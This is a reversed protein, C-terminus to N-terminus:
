GLYGLAELRKRAVDDFDAEEGQIEAPTFSNRWEDISQRLQSAIDEKEYIINTEEGPDNELDYLESKYNMSHILKYKETRIAIKRDREFKVLHSLDRDPYSNKRGKLDQYRESITFTRPPKSSSGATLPIGQMQELGSDKLDLVEALTPLIDLTQVMNKERSGPSFVRPYRIIFPVKLLTDYLVYYHDFHQHDGLSEGHDSTIIFITNELIGKEELFEYLQGVRDDVYALASDYLGKSIEFDRQNMQVLEDYYAKPDQNVKIASRYTMGSPLFKRNYPRPIHYPLHLEGYHIFMFFPHDFLYDNIWDKVDKNIEFARDDKGKNKIVSVVKKVKNTLNSFHYNHYEVFGRTLGTADSIWDNTCFGVTHYGNNKLVEPMTPLQTGFIHNENHVGHKSVYNGTFLSTHSPLTWGAPSIAQEYLVGEKAIHDINPTTEKNYGYCSFHDARAADVIILIINPKPNENM